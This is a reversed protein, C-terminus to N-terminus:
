IQYRKCETEFTDEDPLLNEFFNNLVNVVLEISLKNIVARIENMFNEFDEYLGGDMMKKIKIIVM